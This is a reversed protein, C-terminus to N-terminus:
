DFVLVKKSMVLFEYFSVRGVTRKATAANKMTGNVLLGKSCVCVFVSPPVKHLISKLHPFIDHYTM